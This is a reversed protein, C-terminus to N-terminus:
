GNPITVTQDVTTQVEEILSPSTIIQLEEIPSNTPFPIVPESSSTPQASPDQTISQDIVPTTTLNEAPTTTSNQLNGEMIPSNNSLESEEDLKKINEKTEEIKETITKETDEEPVKKEEQVITSINEDVSIPNEPTFDGGERRIRRMEEEKFLTAADHTCKPDVKLLAEGLLLPDNFQNSLNGYKIFTASFACLAFDPNEISACEILDNDNYDGSSSLVRLNPNEPVTQNKEIQIM